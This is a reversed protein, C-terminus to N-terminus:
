DVNDVNDFEADVRLGESKSQKTCFLPLIKGVPFAVSDAEDEEVEETRVFAPVYESLFQFLLKPNFRV